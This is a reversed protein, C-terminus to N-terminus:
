AAVKIIEPTKLGTVSLEKQKGSVSLYKRLINFSGVADANYRVGDTIYIGREKRNSAEAYRNSVEPSLPSCQSTYSEGQKILQIGYLKLKYELMIYLRNYPLGHFKQNTKHGMDKEKRINRIDGVVVCRIDEKRCYEAIWRTTKHLYDKVANQKKRYLRQIHKSSKPYKIGRESQQAYWVSQVRAIEKHFYRELSLYKRGLIFTRGNGSDYCTMLNHLGLDISLYHGNDQMKEVDKVDYIVIVQCVNKQDPPYIKIQKIVDTNQFIKNELYLYNDCIDYTHKLYEKLQKPLSLRVRKSGSVHVIANQMYTITMGSQKFRPPKPNQIGKSKILAYFSKWSKDVLKCVEQATQSPLSKFWMNGKLRAKQDYWDPYHVMGLEKFNRREYNCVNWLKSAAYCMHGVINSETTNLQIDTKHSLLM